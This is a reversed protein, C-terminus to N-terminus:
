RVSIALGARAGSSFKPIAELEEACEMILPYSLADFIHRNDDSQLVYNLRDKGKKLDKFMKLTHYCHASVKLREFALLQQILQVRVRVSHRPKPVGILVLRGLSSANIQIAPFSDATASYQTLASLDSYCRELDFKRGQQEELDAIIDMFTTTFEELSMETHLSVLEDILTFYARSITKGSKPLYQSMYRKEMIVAAHNTEGTDFGTILEFCNQSPNAYEYEDEDQGEVSGVVHITPKFFRRFHRSTEGDGYVWKGEVFRAYLGPDYAYTSELEELQGPKLKINEKSFMEILRLNKRFSVFTEERMVPLNLKRQRNVYDEYSLNREVYWAQYIWSSEGEESPNTDAIWMQQNFDLHPMRLSLLGLSLVSRSEFNSLESFYIMSFEREKLKAEAENDNDLSFLMCESEGGHLNTIRFFPTRTTGDVKPGPKDDYDKTTYRLGIGAKIWEPLTYNHLNKWMGADKSNKLVKTFMGVRANPTEWLHRVIRHLAAWSKAALRSGSLLLARDYANFADWQKGFLDPLWIGSQTEAM